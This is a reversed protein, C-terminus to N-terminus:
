LFKLLSLRLVRLVCGTNLGIIGVTRFSWDTGTFGLDIFRVFYLFSSLDRELCSKRILYVMTLLKHVICTGSESEGDDMQVDSTDFVKWSVPRTMESSSGTHRRGYIPDPGGVGESPGRWDTRKRGGVMYILGTEKPHYTWPLVLFTHTISLWHSHCHSM